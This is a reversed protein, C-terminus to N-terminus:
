SSVSIGELYWDWGLIAEEPLTKGEALKLNGTNDSLPGVFPSYGEIMRMRMSAVEDRVNQPVSEGFHDIDVGAGLDLLDDGGSWNGEVLSKVQEVYYDDWNILTSGIYANPGFERMDGTSGYAFIGNQAAVQIAEPGDVVSALVDAGSDALAQAAQSMAQPDFWSNIFIANTEVEPNVFRAGAHFGNIAFNASPVPFSAIYGLRNSKTMRGAAMGNLFDAKWGKIYYSRKNPAPTFGSAELFAIDPNANAVEDIIEGYGSTMIVMDAGQAALQRITRAGKSSAPVNEVELIKAKPFAAKIANIGKHHNETWGGDTIPGSHGVAITLNNPDLPAGLGKAWVCAPSVALTGASVACFQLLRRRTLEFDTKM